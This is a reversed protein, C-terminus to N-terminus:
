SFLHMFDTPPKTTRKKPGQIHDKTEEFRQATWNTFGLLTQLLLHHAPLKPILQLM